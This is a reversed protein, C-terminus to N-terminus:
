DLWSNYVMDGSRKTFPSDSRVTSSLGAELLKDVESVKRRVSRGTIGYRRANACDQPSHYEAPEAMLTPRAPRNPVRLYCLLLRIHAAPFM